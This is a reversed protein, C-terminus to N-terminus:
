SPEKPLTLVIETGAPADGVAATGGHAEVLTRVVTTGLGMGGPRTTYFPDFLRQRQEGTLGPGDDRVAVRVAPRGHLGGPEAAVTVRGAGAAAANDFLNRFVQRLRLPDATLRLDTGGPEEALKAPTPGLEAWAERWVAALNCPEYRLAPPAAVARVGDFLRTLEALAKGARDAYELGAPHDALEPRLLRLCAQARQLANRSEHAVAAVAQGVAALREARVLRAEAAKVPTLDHLVWRLAAAPRDQNAYVAVTVPADEGELRLEAGAVARGAALGALLADLRPRDEPHVFVRLPKDPMYRAARGLLDAAAHNAERVVGEDDTVLYGDPAFDFLGRYREREVALAANAETLAENQQRLEEEAVHLEEVATRLEEEAASQPLQTPADPPPRM